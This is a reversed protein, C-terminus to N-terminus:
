AVHGGYFSRQAGKDLRRELPAKTGYVFPRSRYVLGATLTYMAGTIGITEVHLVNLQGAKARENKNICTMVLPIAYAADFLIYSTKIRRRRITAQM